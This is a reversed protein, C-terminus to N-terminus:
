NAKRAPQWSQRVEITGDPHSIEITGDPHFVRTVQPDTVM